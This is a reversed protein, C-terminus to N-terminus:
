LIPGEGDAYADPCDLDTDVSNKGFWKEPQEEACPDNENAFALWKAQFTTLWKGSAGSSFDMVHTIRTIVYYGGLGLLKAYSTDDATGDPKEPIAFKDDSQAKPGYAKSNKGRSLTKPNIYFVGGPKYM